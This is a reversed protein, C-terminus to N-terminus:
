KESNEMGFKIGNNSNNSNTIAIQISLKEKNNSILENLIDKSNNKINLVQKDENITKNQSLLNDYDKKKLIYEPKFPKADKSLKLQNETSNTKSTKNIFDTKSEDYENLHDNTFM